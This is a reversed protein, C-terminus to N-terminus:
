SRKKLLFLSVAALALAGFGADCGGSSGGAFPFGSDDEPILGTGKFTALSLPDSETTEGVPVYVVYISHSDTSFYDPDIAVNLTQADVKKLTFGDVAKSARLSVAITIDKSVTSEKGYEFVRWRRVDVPAYVDISSTQGNSLEGVFAIRESDDISPAAPTDPTPGPQPGPEEGTLVTVDVSTTAIADSSDTGTIIFTYPTSSVLSEDNPAFTITNGDIAAWAGGLESEISYIYNVDGSNNKATLTVTRSEGVKVSVTKSSPTITFEDDDDGDEEATITLTIDDSSGDEGYATVTVKYEGEEQATFTLVVDKSSEVVFIDPSDSDCAVDWSAADGSALTITIDKAEGVKVTYTTVTDPSIVVATDDDDDGEDESAASYAVNFQVFSDSSKVTGSVGNATILTNLRVPIIVTETIGEEPEEDASYILVFAIDSSKAIDASSLSIDASHIAYDVSVAKLWTPHVFPVELDTSSPEYDVSVVTTVGAISGSEVTNYKVLKIYDGSTFKLFDSVDSSVIIEAIDDSITPNTNPKVFVDFSLTFTLEEPYLDQMRELSYYKEGIETLSVTGALEIHYDVSSTGDPNPYTGTITAKNNDDINLEVDTFDDIGSFEWVVTYASQSVDESATTTGAKIDVSPLDGSWIFPIGGLKPSAPNQPLDASLLSPSSLDGSWIVDIVDAVDAAMASPVALCVVLLTIFFTRLFKSLISEEEFLLLILVNAHCAFFFKM